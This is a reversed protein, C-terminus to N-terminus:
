RGHHSMSTPVPGLRQTRGPLPHRQSRQYQRTIGGAFVATGLTVSLHLRRQQQDPASRAGPLFFGPWNGINWQATVRQTWQKSSTPRRISDRWTPSRGYDIWGAGIILACTILFLITGFQLENPLEQFIERRPRHPQHIPTQIGISM